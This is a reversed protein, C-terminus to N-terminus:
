FILMRWMKVVFGEAEDDLFGELERFIDEPKAKSEVKRIIFEIMADEEAGLYEVVKKKVWPRLKKDVISSSAVIDWDIPYAFIDKKDSPIQAILAKMKEQQKKKEEADKTVEKKEDEDLRTLPKHKKFKEEAEAKESAFAEAVSGKDGGVKLSIGRDKKNEDEQRRRSDEEEAKKAKMAAAKKRDEEDEEEARRAEEKRKKEKEKEEEM